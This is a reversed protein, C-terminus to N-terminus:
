LNNLKYMRKIGLFGFLVFLIIGSLYFIQSTIVSIITLSICGIIFMSIMIISFSDYIKKNLFNTLVIAILQQAVFFATVAFFAVKEGLAILVVMIIAAMMWSTFMGYYSAKKLNMEEREDAKVLLNM